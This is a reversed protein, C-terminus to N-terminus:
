EPKGHKQGRHALIIRLLLTLRAAADSGGLDDPEGEIISRVPHGPPLLKRAEVKCPRLDM